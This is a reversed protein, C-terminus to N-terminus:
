SFDRLVFDLAKLRSIRFKGPREPPLPPLKTPLEVGNVALWKRINRLLRKLGSLSLHFKAATERLSLGDEHEQYIRLAQQKPVISFDHIAYREERPAVFRFGVPVRGRNSKEPM